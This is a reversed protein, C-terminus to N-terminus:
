DWPMLSFRGDKLLLREHSPCIFDVQYTGTTFAGTRLVGDTTTVHNLVAGVGAVELMTIAGWRAGNSSLDNANLSAATATLILGGVEDPGGASTITMGTQMAVLAADITTNTAAYDISTSMYVHNDDDRRTGPTNGKVYILKYTGNDVTGIATDVDALSVPLFTDVKATGSGLSAGPTLRLTQTGDFKYIGSVRGDSFAEAPHEGFTILYLASNEFLHGPLHEIMHSGRIYAPPLSSGLISVGSKDLIDISGGRENVGGLATFTRQGSTTISSRIMVVCFPAEARLGNLSIDTATAATLTGNWIARQYNLFPIVAPMQRYLAVTNQRVIDPQIRTVLRLSISTDHVVGTGSIVQSAGPQRYIRVIVDGKFTRPDMKTLITGLLPMAYTVSGSTPIVIERDFNPFGMNLRGFILLKEATDPELFLGLANYLDDGFITQLPTLDSNGCIEIRQIQHPYNVLTASSTGQETKDTSMIVAEIKGCLDNSIRMDVPTNTPLGSTFSSPNILYTAHRSADVVSHEPDSMLYGNVVSMDAVDKVVFSKKM